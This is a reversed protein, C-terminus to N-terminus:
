RLGDTFADMALTFFAEIVAPHDPLQVAGGGYVGGSM